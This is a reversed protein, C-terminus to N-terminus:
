LLLKQENFPLMLLAFPCSFLCFIEIALAYASCFVWEMLIHLFSSWKFKIFLWIGWVFHLCFEQLSVELLPIYILTPFTFIHQVDNNLPFIFIVFVIIYWQASSHSCNLLNDNHTRTLIPLLHLVWLSNITSIAVIVKSTQWNRRFSHMDLRYGLLKLGM